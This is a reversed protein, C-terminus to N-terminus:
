QASSGGADATKTRSFLLDREFLSLARNMLDRYGTYDGAPFRGTVQRWEISGTVKRGKISWKGTCSGFRPDSEVTSDAPLHIDYGDPVTISVSSRLVLPFRVEFPTLRKDVPGPILYLREIAAPLSMQLGGESERIQKKATYTFRAYLPKSTDTIDDVTLNSVEFSTLGMQQQFVTQRSTAPVSQYMSRLYAGYVGRASLVENVRMSQADTVDIQKTLEIVCEDSSSAPISVLHPEKDSLLLASKAVPEGIGSTPDAGKDTVDIFKGHDGSVYVIMHNFQDMSPLDPVIAGQSPLLVLDAPVNVANLMQRLLVAHDKCDGYKNHIIESPKNPIRARRGFEIAKYVYNSQVYSALVSVKEDSSQLGATIRKAEATVADDPALRDAISKLYDKGLTGWGANVDALWLMPAYTDISPQLPEYRVVMPETQRWYLGEPTKQPEINPSSRFRIKSPEGIFAVISERVPFYRSFSHELFPFETLKGIERRTITVFLRCGPQLGAIPINLVKRHTAMEGPREDLVYYDSLKGTSVVKGGGDVVRVENVFMEEDLPDFVEQLTSFSSVGSSDLMKAQIYDTSRKEKGNWSIATIRRDYYAGYDAAYNDPAAPLENTLTAPISVPEIPEKISVSSGEGMIATVHELYSNMLKNAPALRVASEFSTKAERYWKLGLESRGKLYYAYASERKAKLMERSVDLADNYLAAALDTEALDGSVDPNFPAKQHEAKLIAIAKPFESKLRYTEAKMLRLNLSDHDLALGDIAALADDYRSQSNLLKVYDTFMTEDHYGDAFIAAYTNLAAATQGIANQFYATYARIDSNMRLSAPRTIAFNFADRSQDTHMWSKLANIVYIKESDIIKSASRFFPIAQEYEGANFHYLGIQNLVFAQTKQEKRTFQTSVPLLSKPLPHFHIRSFGDDFIPDAVAADHSSWGVILYANNNTRAIALRYRLHLKEVDREYDFQVGELGDPNYDRRNVLNENPYPVNFIAFLGATLSDLDPNEGFFAVPVVAIYNDGRKAGFEAHPYNQALTKMPAWASQAVMVAYNYNSSIFNTKYADSQQAFRQPDVIEFNGYVTKLEAAVEAKDKVFGWGVLQYGFGNRSIYLHQYYFPYGNVRGESEVLWGDLGNVSIAKEGLIHMSDVAASVTSKGLEALQVSTLDPNGLNEAVVMFYVEPQRRLFGVKALKSFNSSNFSVWPRGPARFKFNSEPYSYVQGAIPITTQPMQGKAGRVFGSIFASGFILALVLSWVAQARGRDFETPRTSLERQGLIALVIGALVCVGFFFSGITHIAYRALGFPLARNLLTSGSIIGLGGLVLALALVCKTNTGPRRAISLCKSVGLGICVLFILQGTTQGANYAASTPDVNAFHPQLLAGFNPIM